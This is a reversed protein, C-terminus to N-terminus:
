AASPSPSPLFEASSFWRSLYMKKTSKLSFLLKKNEPIPFQRANKELGSHYTSNPSSSMKCRQQKTCMQFNQKSELIRDSECHACIPILQRRPAFLRTTKREPFNFETKQGKRGKPRRHAPLRSRSSRPVGSGGGAVEVEVEGALLPRAAVPLPVDATGGGEGGGGGEVAADDVHHGALLGATAAARTALCGTVPGGGAM